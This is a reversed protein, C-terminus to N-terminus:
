SHLLAPRIWRHAAFGILIGVIWTTVAIAYYSWGVVVPPLAACTAAGYFVDNCPGAPPSPDLQMWYFFAAVAIGWVAVSLTARVM